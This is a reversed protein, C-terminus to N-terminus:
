MSLHERGELHFKLIHPPKETTLDMLQWAATGPEIGAEGVIEQPAAPIIVQLVFCFRLIRFM